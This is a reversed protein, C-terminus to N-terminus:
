NPFQKLIDLRIQLLEIIDEKSTGDVPVSAIYGHFGRNKSLIWDDDSLCKNFILASCLCIGLSTSTEILFFKVSSVDEIDKIKSIVMEYHSILKDVLEQTM